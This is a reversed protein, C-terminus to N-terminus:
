RGAERKRGTEGTRRKGKDGALQGLGNLRKLEQTISDAFNSMRFEDRGGAEQRSGAIKRRRTEGNRRTGKRQYGSNSGEVLQSVLGSGAAEQYNTPERREPARNERSESGPKRM